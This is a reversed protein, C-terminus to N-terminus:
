SPTDPPKTARTALRLVFENCGSKRGCTRIEVSQFGRQRYFGLVKDPSAVELPYGGLWDITDHWLSMGRPPRGKGRVRRVVARVFYLYWVHLVLVLGRLLWGRNYLRKVVRWYRSRWGQDNYIALYLLGGPKVLGAVNEMADWMAGTHHLVGWAYVVDFRGLSALYGQDLVSGQAIRWPALRGGYRRKMEQTCAVSQPDFDFSTVEAGLCCAALSFLGSGSGVDLFTRGVLDRVQLMEQLSAKAAEIRRGDVSDLFRAWNAGFRFREGRDLERQHAAQDNTM